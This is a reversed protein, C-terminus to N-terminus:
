PKVMPAESAGTMTSGIHAPLPNARWAARAVPTVGCDRRGEPAAAPGQDPLEDVVDVDLRARGAGDDRQARWERRRGASGIRRLRLAPLPEAFKIGDSGSV